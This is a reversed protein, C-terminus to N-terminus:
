AVKQILYQQFQPPIVTVEKPILVKLPAVHAIREEIAIPPKSIDIGFELLKRRHRYYTDHALVSKLHKGQRWLALTGQYTSSLKLYDKESINQNKMTLRGAFDSYLEDLMLELLEPENTLELRDLMQKRLTLEARLQGEVFDKLQPPLFDPLRHKKSRSCLEKFKNYFKLSWLGSHKGVYFTNKCFECRDGRSSVTRPMMQLYENVAADSGLDFMKTIDIRTVRFEWRMIRKCIVKISLDTFGLEPLAKCVTAVLLSRMCSLGFINHGQIFKTPNGKISLGTCKGGAEVRKTKGTTYANDVSSIAITSSYSGETDFDNEVSRLLPFESMVEGDHNILMRRGQQIPAHVFPIEIDLWDIM